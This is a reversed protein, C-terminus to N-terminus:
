DAPSTVTGSFLVAGRAEITFFFPRDVHFEVKPLPAEVPLSSSVAVVVTVAAAEAGKENVEIFGKQFVDSIAVTTAKDAFIGSFDAGEIFPAHLGLGKLADKLPSDADMKFKPLWVNVEAKSWRDLKGFVDGDIAQVLAALGDVAKPVVITMVSDGDFPLRVAEYTDTALHSIKLGEAHMTPVGKAAGGDVHFDSDVTSTADFVEKWGSKFRIANTLVLRTTENFQSADVVTPIRGHTAESSWDNIAAAAGAADGVFNLTEADSAYTSRIKAVFDADLPHDKASWAANAIQIGVDDLSASEAAYQPLCRLDASLSQMENGIDYGGTGLRLTSEIEAKSTGSAGTDLLAFALQVSLPSLVANEKGSLKERSLNVGFASVDALLKDRNAAVYGSRSACFDDLLATGKALGDVTKGNSGSGSGSGDGSEAKKGCATAGICLLAVLFPQKKTLIM